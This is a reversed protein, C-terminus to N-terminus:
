PASGGGSTFHNFKDFFGVVGRSRGPAFRNRVSGVKLYMEIVSDTNKTMQYIM